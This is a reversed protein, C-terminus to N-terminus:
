MLATVWSFDSSIQLVKGHTEAKKQQGDPAAASDRDRPVGSSLKVSTKKKMMKHSNEVARISVHLANLDADIM